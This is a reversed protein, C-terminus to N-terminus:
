GDTAKAPNALVEFQAAIRMYHLVEFQTALVDLQLLHRYHCPKAVHELMRLEFDNKCVVVQMEHEVLRRELVVLEWYYHDQLGCGQTCVMRWIQLAAWGRLLPCVPGSGTGMVEIGVLELQKPHTLLHWGCTDLAQMDVLCELVSHAVLCLCPVM